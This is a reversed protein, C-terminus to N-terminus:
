YNNIDHFSVILIKDEVGNLTCLKVYIQELICGYEDSLETILKFVYLYDTRIKSDENKIKEVFNDSSLSLVYEEIDKHSLGYKAMFQANKDRKTFIIFRTKDNIKKLVENAYHKATM